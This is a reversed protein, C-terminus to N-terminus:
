RPLAPGGGSPIGTQRAKRPASRGPWKTEDDLASQPRDVLYLLSTEVTAGGQGGPNEIRSM